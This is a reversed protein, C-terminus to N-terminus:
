RAQPDPARDAPVEVAQVDPRDKLADKIKQMRQRLDDTVPAVPLVEPTTLPVVPSKSEFLAWDGDEDVLKAEEALAFGAMWMRM